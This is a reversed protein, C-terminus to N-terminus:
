SWARNSAAVHLGIRTTQGFSLERAAVDPQYDLTRMAALVRERTAEKVGPRDNLVRSVTGTSVGAVVAVDQITPRQAKLATANSSM